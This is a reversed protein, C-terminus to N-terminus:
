CVHTHRHTYCHTHTKAQANSSSRWGSDVVWGDDADATLSKWKRRQGSGDDDGERHDGDTKDTWEMTVDGMERCRRGLTHSLSKTIDLIDILLSLYAIVLSNSCFALGTHKASKKKTRMQPRDDRTDHAHVHLTWTGNDNRELAVVVAVIVVM